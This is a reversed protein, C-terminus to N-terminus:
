FKILETNDEGSAKRQITFMEGNAFFANWSTGTLINMNGKQAEPVLELPFTALTLCM